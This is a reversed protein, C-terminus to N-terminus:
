AGLHERELGGFRPVAVAKLVVAPQLQARQGGRVRGLRRHLQGVVQEGRDRGRLLVPERRDALDLDVAFPLRM